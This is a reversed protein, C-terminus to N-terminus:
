KRVRMRRVALPASATTPTKRHIKLENSRFRHEFEAWRNWDTRANKVLTRYYYEDMDFFFFLTISPSESKDRPMKKGIKEFWLAGSYNFSLGLLIEKNDLLIFIFNLIDSTRRNKKGYASWSAIEVERAHQMVALNSSRMKRTGLRAWLHWRNAICVIYGLAIWLIILLWLRTMSRAGHILTINNVLRTNERHTYPGNRALDVPSSGESNRKWELTFRVGELITGFICSFFNVLTFFFSSRDPLNSKSHGIYIFIEM